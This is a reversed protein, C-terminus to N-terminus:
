DSSSTSESSSGSLFEVQEIGKPAMDKLIEMFDKGVLRMVRALLIPIPSSPENKKYYDCILKLVRSVDENNNIAALGVSGATKVMPASGGSVATNAEDQVNEVEENLGRKEIWESVLASIEKLLKRLETFSPAAGVGVQGTVFNELANLFQLSDTLARGTDKLYEAECDQFAGEISALKPPEVNPNVAPIQGQAVQIDRLCFKGFVHSEVLTLRQLPKLSTEFDCLSMLINVRETPDNNDDPDLQPYIDQWFSQTLKDILELGKALGAFGELASLAQLYFILVRLDRTRTLLQEATKRVEKWNPPEAEQIATGVQQEPKGKVAQELAIFDPDYELDKGCPHNADIKNLYDEIEM